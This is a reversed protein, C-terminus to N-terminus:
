TRSVSRQLLLQVVDKMCPNQHSNANPPTTATARPPLHLHYTVFDNEPTGTGVLLAPTQLKNNFGCKKKGKL